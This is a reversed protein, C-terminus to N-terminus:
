EVKNFIKCFVGILLGAAIGCAIAILMGILQYGGQAYRTYNPGKQVQSDTNDPGYAGSAFLISSYIAGLLSPVLFLNFSGLSDIIGSENWCKKKNANLVTVIIGSIFGILM